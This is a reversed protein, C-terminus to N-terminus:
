QRHHAINNYFERKDTHIAVYFGILETEDIHEEKLNLAGIKGPPFFATADPNQVLMDHAALWLRCKM